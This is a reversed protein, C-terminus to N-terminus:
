HKTGEPLHFVTASSHGSLSTQIAYTWGRTGAHPGSSVTVLLDRGDAVPAYSIVVVKALSGLDIGKDPADSQHEAVTAAQDPVPRLVLLAGAPIAPMLASLAVYGSWTGDAAHIRGLGNPHGGVAANPIAADIM